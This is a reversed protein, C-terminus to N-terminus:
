ASRRTRRRRGVVVKPSTTAPTKSGSRTGKPGFPPQLTYRHEATYGVASLPAIKFLKDITLLGRKELGHVGRAVTDASVGYWEPAKEFPLRFGDGLTLAILLVALEPLTLIEYWHRDVTDAPGEQWFKNTLKLYRDKVEGPHTYGSRKGDERLLTVVALRKRRDREILGYRELRLWAKSIASKASKTDPLPVGLARALGGRAAVRGM